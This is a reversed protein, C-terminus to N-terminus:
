PNSGQSRACHYPPYTRSIGYAHTYWVAAPLLAVAAFGWLARRRFLRAGYATWAMYGLPLGIILAPAKILIALSTAISM